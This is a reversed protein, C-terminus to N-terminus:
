EGETPAASAAPPTSAARPATGGPPPAGTSARISLRPDALAIHRAPAGAIAELLTRAALAGWGRADTAVSTLSPHVHRGIETDDFGTVSLDDPVRLGRRQAVGVGAVAMSDNSYVIATPRDAADLIEATARAGDAASFDTEIV